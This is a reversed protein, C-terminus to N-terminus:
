STRVQITVGGNSMEAGPVVAGGKIADAIAKKDPSLTVKEKIFASPLDAESTIVVKPAVNKLSVTAIGEFKKLNLIEMAGCITSRIREAQRELRDSRLVMRKSANLIGEQLGEIAALRELASNMAENFNTEGEILTSAAEEDGDVETAFAEMLRRAVETEKHLAHESM